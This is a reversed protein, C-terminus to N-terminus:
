EFSVMDNSCRKPGPRQSRVRDHLRLSHAIFSRLKPLSSIRPLRERYQPNAAVGMKKRLAANAALVVLARAAADIDRPPVLVGEIGYRVVERCGTVDNDRDATRM